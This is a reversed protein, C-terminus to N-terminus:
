RFDTAFLDFGAGIIRVTDVKGRAINRVRALGRRAEHETLGWYRADIIIHRAQGKQRISDNIKNKVTSSDAHPSTPTKFETLVEDVEADGMRGQNLERKARARRGEAALLEAIRKEQPSFLRESEDISGPWASMM